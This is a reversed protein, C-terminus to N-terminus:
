LPLRPDGSGFYRKVDSFEYDFPNDCLGKRLPNEYMYKLKENLKSETLINFDYYDPQWLQYTHRRKKQTSLRITLLMEEDLTILTHITEKAIYKKIDRIISPLDPSWGSGTQAIKPLDPSRGDGSFECIMHIHDPMVIYGKLCFDGRKEYFLITKIAMLATDKYKFVEARKNTVMTIFHYGEDYKTKQSH